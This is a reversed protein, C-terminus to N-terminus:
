LREELREVRRTLERLLETQVALAAEQARQGAELAKVGKWAIGGLLLDAILTIIVGEIGM